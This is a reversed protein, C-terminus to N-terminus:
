RDCGRCLPESASGQIQVAKGWIWAQDIPKGAVMILGTNVFLNDFLEQGRWTVGLSPSLMPEIHNAIRISVAKFDVGLSRVSPVIAIIHDACQVVVGRKILEYTLLDSTILQAM